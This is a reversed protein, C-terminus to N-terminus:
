KTGPSVFITFTIRAELCECHSSPSPSTILCNQNLTSYKGWQLGISGWLTPCIRVKPMLECWSRSCSSRCSSVVLNPTFSQESMETVAVRAMVPGLLLSSSHQLTQQWLKKSVGDTDDASVDCRRLMEPCLGTRVNECEPGTLLLFQHKHQQCTM